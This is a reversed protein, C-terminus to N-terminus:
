STIKIILRLEAESHGTRIVEVRMPQKKLLSLSEFLDAQKSESLQPRPAGAGFAGPGFEEGKYHFTAPWRGLLRAVIHPRPTTRDNVYSSIAQRTVHLEEALEKRTVGAGLLTQIHARLGSKLRRRETEGSPM